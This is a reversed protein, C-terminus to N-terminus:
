GPASAASAALPPTVGGDKRCEGAWRINSSRSAEGSGEGWAVLANVRTKSASHRPPSPDPTLPLGPCAQGGVGSGEGGSRKAVRPCPFPLEASADFRPSSLTEGWDTTILVD